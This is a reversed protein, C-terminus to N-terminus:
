KHSPKFKNALQMLLNPANEKATPINDWPIIPQTSEETATAQSTYVTFSNPLSDKFFVKWNSSNTKCQAICLETNQLLSYLMDSFRPFGLQKYSFGIIVEKIACDVTSPNVGEVFSHKFEIDASMWGIIEKLKETIETTSGNANIHKVDRVLRKIREDKLVFDSVKNKDDNKNQMAVSGTPKFGKFGVKFNSPPTFYVSLDTKKTAHVLFDIFRDYGLASPDFNPITADLLERIVSPNIGQELSKKYEKSRSIQQILDNIKIWILNNNDPEGNDKMKDILHMNRTDAVRINIRENELEPDEIWIFHDCVASFMKNTANKYACGIVTKGYQHLQHVLNAYAGDGSIIVYCTIEPHTHLVEMVDICLRIDSVNRLNGGHTGFVTIPEIDLDVLDNLLFSLKPNFWNAYAKHVAIRGTKETDLILRIIEKISLGKVVKPSIGYGKTLNEIDIFIGTNYPANSNM